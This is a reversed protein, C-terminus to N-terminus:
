ILGESRLQAIEKDTYGLLVSLIQDTDQGLRPAGRWVQGPTRSFKPTIGFAKINRQLEQDEYEIFNDRQIWHPNNVAASADMVVSCPVKFRNLHTEVEEATREAVWERTFGDLRRGKVSNVAEASSACEVWSYEKSDLGIAQVFRNYVAPGFSGFVVWKDKARFVDYPQFTASRNGTRQRLVGAELFSVFTDSLVRASSEYQSVDVVQGQGTKQTEIFAVLAGFVTFMASIYDNSWPTAKVPPEPDPFGNLNMWGSAAQGILDYSGRDCIEEKGGFQPRGFGSVHVIILRPNLELCDKEDIGLKDLWVLNELWIDVNKILGLFINKAEPHKFDFELGFSLRNRADQAWSSSVRKDGDQIFPALTRYTDGIKPREIHIVEAGFDALLNAAHPVAILSGTSLVRMGQLPGYPPILAPAPVRKIEELKKM